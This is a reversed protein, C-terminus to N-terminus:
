LYRMISRKLLNTDNLPQLQLEYSTSPFPHLTGFAVGPIPTYCKKKEAVEFERNKQLRSITMHTNINLLATDIYFRIM